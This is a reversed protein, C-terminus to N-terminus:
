PLLYVFLLWRRLELFLIVMIWGLSKPTVKPWLVHKSVILVWRCGVVSKGSLLPVLEWTGSNHLASLEDLMAQRWGHHALTDRVSNPITVSSISSLCAYFPSSLRHYSLAIYHPFHNRSSRIGKRLAIPLDSSPLSSETTPDPPSETTPDPPSETTPDPPSETTPDPPSVTTSVQSSDNAPQQPYHRCSYVQLPPPASVLSTCPVSPLDCIM